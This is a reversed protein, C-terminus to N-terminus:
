IPLELHLRQGQLYFFFVVFFFLFCFLVLYLTYELIKQFSLHKKLYHTNQQRHLETNKCIVGVATLLRTSIPGTVIVRLVAIPELVAPISRIFDVATLIFGM